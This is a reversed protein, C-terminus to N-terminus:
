AEEVTHYVIHVSEPVKEKGVKSLPKTLFEVVMKRTHMKLFAKPKKAVLQRVHHHRLNVHKSRRFDVAVHVTSWKFTGANDESICIRRQGIGLEDLVLHLWLIDEISESLAVYNTETSNLTISKQLGPTFHIVASVYFLVVSTQSHGEGTRRGM